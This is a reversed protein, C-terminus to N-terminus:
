IQYDASDSVVKLSSGLYEYRDLWEEVLELTLEYESDETHKLLFCENNFRVQVGQPVLRIRLKYLNEDSM